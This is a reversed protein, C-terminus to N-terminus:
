VDALNFVIALDPEAFVFPRVGIFDIVAGDRLVLDAVNGLGGALLLAFACALRRREAAFRVALLALVLICTIRLSLVSEVAIWQRPSFALGDNHPLALLLAGGAARPRGALQARAWSKSVWDVLCALTGALVAFRLHPHGLVRRVAVPPTAHGGHNMG